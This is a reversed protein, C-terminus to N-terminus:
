ATKKHMASQTTLHRATAMLEARSRVGLKRYVSKVHDHTTHVSLGMSAAILKESQGTLLLDLTERERPSLQPTSTAPAFLTEHESRFVDIAECDEEEFPRDGNARKLVLLRTTGDALRCISVLSADVSAHMHLEAHIRKCVPAETSNRTVLDAGATLVSTVLPDISTPQTLYFAMMRAEEGTTRWGFSVADTVRPIRDREIDGVAIM